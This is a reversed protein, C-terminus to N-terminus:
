GCATGAEEAVSTVLARRQESSAKTEGATVSATITGSPDNTDCVWLATFHQGNVDIGAQGGAVPFKEDAAAIQKKRNAIDNFSALKAMVTVANKQDARNVSCSFSRVGPPPLAEGKTVTQYKDTGVVDTVTATPVGCAKSGSYGPYDDGGCGSLGVVAALAALVVVPRM